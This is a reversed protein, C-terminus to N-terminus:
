RQARQHLHHLFQAFNTVGQEALSDLFERQQAPDELIEQVPSVRELLDERGISQLYTRKAPTVHWISLWELIRQEERTFGNADDIVQEMLQLRRDLRM